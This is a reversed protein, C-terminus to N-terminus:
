NRSSAAFDIYIGLNAFLPIERRWAASVVYENGEKSIELDSSKVSSIDDISSRNEFARRLDAVSAGRGRTDGAIGAVAKKVAAYELYAPVLKMGLLAVFILVVAGAILGMLTIGQQRNRM